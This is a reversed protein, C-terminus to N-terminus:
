SIDRLSIETRKQEFRSSLELIRIQLLKLNMMDDFSLPVLSAVMAESLSNEASVEPASSDSGAITRRDARM